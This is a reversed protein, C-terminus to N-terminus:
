TQKVGSKQVQARHSTINYKVCTNVSYNWVTHTKQAQAKANNLGLAQACQRATPTYVDIMAVTLWSFISSSLWCSDSSDRSLAANKALMCSM